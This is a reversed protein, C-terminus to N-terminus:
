KAIKKELVYSWTFMNRAGLAQSPAWALSPGQLKLKMIKAVVM